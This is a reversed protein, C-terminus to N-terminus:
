AGAASGRDLRAPLRTLRLFRPAATLGSTARASGSLLWLTVLGIGFGLVVAPWFRADYREFLRQYTAWSFPVFDALSYGLLEM